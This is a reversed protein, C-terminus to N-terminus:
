RKKNKKLYIKIQGENNKYNTYVIRNSKLKFKQKM